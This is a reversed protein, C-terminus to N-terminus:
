SNLFPILYQLPNEELVMKQLHEKWLDGFFLKAFTHSFILGYVNPNLDSCKECMQNPLWHPNDCSTCYMWGNTWFYFNDPDQLDKKTVIEFAKVLIEKNNM